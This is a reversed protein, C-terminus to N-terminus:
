EEEGNERRNVTACYKLAAAIQDTNMKNYKRIEDAPTNQFILYALLKIEEDTRTLKVMNYAKTVLQVNDPTYDKNNDIRDLSWTRNSINTGCSLPLGTQKCIGGQAIWLREIDQPTLSWEWEEEHARVRFKNYTGKILIFNHEPNQLLVARERQAKNGIVSVNKQSEIRRAIWFPCTKNGCTKHFAYTEKINGCDCQIKYFRRFRRQQSIVFRTGLDELLTLNTDPLKKGIHDQLYEKTPRKNTM